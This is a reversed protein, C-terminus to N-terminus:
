SNANRLLNRVGTSRSHLRKMTLDASSCKRRFCSEFTDIAHSAFKEFQFLRHSNHKRKKRFSFGCDDANTQCQCMDHRQRESAYTKVTGGERVASATFGMTVCDITEVINWVTRRIDSTSTERDKPRSRTCSARRRRRRDGVSPSTDTLRRRHCARRRDTSTRQKVARPDTSV